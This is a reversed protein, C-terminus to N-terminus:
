LERKEEYRKNKNRHVVYNRVFNSIGLIEAWHPIYLIKHVLIPNTILYLVTTCCHPFYYSWTPGIVRCYTSISSYKKWKRRCELKYKVILKITCNVGNHMQIYENEKEWNIHFTSQVFLVCILYEKGLSTSSTGKM